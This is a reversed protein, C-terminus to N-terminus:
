KSRSLGLEQILALFVEEPPRSADLSSFMKRGSYFGVLPATQEHYVALRRRIVDERDDERVVLPGSCRDCVGEVQSPLSTVHFMAGCRSCTRRGTLREVLIADSIEFSVVKSIELGREALLASLAEAQPITRPFGDLIFGGQCDAALTRERILGIVVEDPVLAGKSIFEQAARGLNTGAAIASRLM